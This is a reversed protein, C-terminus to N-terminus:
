IRGLISGFYAWCIDLPASLYLEFPEGETGPANSDQAWQLATKGAGSMLSKDASKQLLLSVSATNGAKAAYM